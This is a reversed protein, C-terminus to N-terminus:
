NLRENYNGVVTKPTVTGDKSLTILYETNSNVSETEEDSYKFVKVHEGIIDGYSDIYDETYDSLTGESYGMKQAVYYKQEGELLNLYNTIPIDKIIIDETATNYGVSMRFSECIFRLPVMTIGNQVYATSSMSKTAGNLTYLTTYPKFTLVAGNHKVTIKTTKSDYSLEYGLIDTVLTRLPIYTVGNKVTLNYKNSTGNYVIAHREVRAGTNPTNNKVQTTLNNLANTLNELNESLDEVATEMGDYGYVENLNNTCVSGIIFTACMLSMIIRKM